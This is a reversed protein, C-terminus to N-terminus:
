KSPIWRHVLGLGVVFLVAVSAHGLLVHSTSDVPCHMKLLMNGALGAAAAAVLSGFTNGRDFLRVIAYVPLGFLLGMGM